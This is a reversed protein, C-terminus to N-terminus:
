ISCHALLICLLHNKVADRTRILSATRTARPVASVTGFSTLAVAVPRAEASATARLRPLGRQGHSECAAASVTRNKTTAARPPSQPRHSRECPPFGRRRRRKADVASTNRGFSAPGWQNCGRVKEFPIFMAGSSVDDDAARPTSSGIRNSAFAIVAVTSWDSYM